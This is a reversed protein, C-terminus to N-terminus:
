AVELAVISINDPGGRENALDILADVAGQPDDCRRMARGIEDTHVLGHLGDSSLVIVDGKRVDTAAVDVEVEHRTGISRTILNRWEHNHAEEETLVGAELQEVVWSHDKTLPIVGKDRFLIARSDGVHGVYARGGDCAVVTCTTGMGKAGSRGQSAHFVRRNALRLAKALLSSFEVVNRGDSREQVYRQVAEGLVDIAIRSAIEGGAAGGMGDAVAAVVVADDDNVFRWVQVADQNHSRLRGVDTGQGVRIPVTSQIGPRLCPSTM